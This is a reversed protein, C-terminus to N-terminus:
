PAPVARRSGPSGTAVYAAWAALALVVALAFLSVGSYWASWQLFAPSDRLFNQVFLYAIAAVLGWRTLAIVVGVVLLAMPPGGGLALPLLAILGGALWDRRVLQRLVFMLFAYVLGGFIATAVTDVFFGSERRVSLLANLNTALGAGGTLSLYTVAALGTAAALAAGILVDHGVLPDRLQGALARNWAILVQPWHRRISPELALYLVCGTAADYLADSLALALLM